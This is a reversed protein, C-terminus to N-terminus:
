AAKPADQRRVLAEVGALLVFLAAIGWHTYLAKAIGSTFGYSHLGVLPM